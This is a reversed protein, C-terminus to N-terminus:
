EDTSDTLNEHQRSDNESTIYKWILEVTKQHVQNEM